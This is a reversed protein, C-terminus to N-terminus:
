FGYPNYRTHIDGRKGHMTVYFGNKIKKISEKSFRPQGM